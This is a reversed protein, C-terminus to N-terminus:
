WGYYGYRYGWEDIRKRICDSRLWGAYTLKVTFSKNLLQYDTSLIFRDKSIKMGISADVLIDTAIEKSQEVKEKFEVSQLRLGVYPTFHSKLYAHHFKVFHYDTHLVFKSKLNNQENFGRLYSAGFSYRPLNNNIEIGTLNNENNVISQESIIGISGIQAAANQSMFLLTLLMLVFDTKVNKKNKM